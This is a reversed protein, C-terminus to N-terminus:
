PTMWCSRPGFKIWNQGGLGRTSLQPCKKHYRGKTMHGLENIPIGIEPHWKLASYKKLALMPEKLIKFEFMKRLLSKCGTFFLIHLQTRLKLSRSASSWHYWVFATWQGANRELSLFIQFKRMFVLLDQCRVYSISFIRYIQLM